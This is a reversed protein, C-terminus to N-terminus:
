GGIGRSVRRIFVAEEGVQHGVGLNERVNIQPQSRAATISGKLRKMYNRSLNLGRGLIPATQSYTLM